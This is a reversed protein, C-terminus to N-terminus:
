TSGTSTQAPTGTRSRFMAKLTKADFQYVDSSNCGRLGRCRALMTIMAHELYSAYDNVASDELHLLSHTRM